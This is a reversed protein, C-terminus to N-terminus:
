KQKEEVISANLMGKPTLVLYGRPSLRLYGTRALHAVMEAKLKRRPFSNLHYELEMFRKPHKQVLIVREDKAMEHLLARGKRTPRGTDKKM